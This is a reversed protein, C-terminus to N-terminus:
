CLKSNLLRWQGQISLTRYFHKKFKKKLFYMLDKQPYGKELLSEVIPELCNELEVKSGSIVGDALLEFMTAQRSANKNAILAYVKNQKDSV